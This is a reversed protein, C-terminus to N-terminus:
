YIVHHLFLGHAPATMKLNKKGKGAVVLSGVIMRVMKYLFRDGKIRIELKKKELCFDISTITCIPNLAKKTSFASFDHTGVFKLSEKKMADMDLKQPIHWSYLRDMPTQFSEVSLSYRYEKGKADITPHFDEDVQRIELIRIEVPLHANIAKQLRLPSIAKEISFAISQGKAHVGKDTRSAGSLLVESGTVIKIALVLETEVTNGERAKQFGLYFTGDYAVTSLFRV